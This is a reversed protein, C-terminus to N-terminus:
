AKLARGNAAGNGNTKVAPAVKATVAASDKGKIGTQEQLQHIEELVDLLTSASWAQTPCSDQCFAGQDNTLEPLGAWPSEKIHRRHELLQNSIYHFTELTNETSADSGGNVERDFKLYARLYFGLPWVWPPGRHYSFGQGMTFDDSDNSNDYVPRYTMDSPDLTRMGLVDRLVHSAAQLATLAHEPEFLEPAVSMAIPFNARLQYDSWERGAGSGYVDKYIGRRNVLKPDVRYNGDDEPNLPVYYCAEFSKQILDGWAKYSITQEKGDIMAEVGKAPWKGRASLEDVWRLTSKLLGTIEVAAGDRPTGPVGRNGAKASSGMKDQWTGCNHENGGFIIGTSWDVDIDINFGPDKMCEDIKPGANYERFHIGSAHRQLIEQILEAITSEYAFAKPDDWPVWEDNAPFRRKVKEQLIAEGDKVLTCYDQVNQAFFWPGDRCNYRPTRTSDLLNPILGHKLTSGFSLIHERAYQSMGTTLYLGRLSIFVDRGWCRAWGASFFPLGAAMSASDKDPWLSASKVVGNLQVSTLALAKTFDHGSKVFTSMQSVARACAAKYAENVVLAFYKPRMFSPVTAKIADFREKLWAAPAALRPFTAQQKELRGQIYDMPWAGERLHACVAHGLDNNEIIKRLPHMWGELGCYVLKGHGPIDYVGDAGGTVDREEGDARYLVVNLDILDLEAMAKDADKTCLEDLSASLGDMQTAFFMVSGPPFQDPVIIESYAVADSGDVHGVEIRPCPVDVLKSPLGRLTDPDEKQERDTIQLTKGFIYQVKTRDLRIPNIDGRDQRGPSHFASHAVCIYGKHTQPHVRHMILYDNEQHVHGESYGGAVMEAHLHNVVRKVESIGFSESAKEGSDVPATAYSRKEGVVDLLKPYLDDFGKNSGIASWSFAVLAGMTIADETTRKSTPTENDHTVDMFLAHPSSGPHPTILAEVQADQGPVGIRDKYSLCESDMSGIPKNVGFRYLLRSEEKPDHGNEMERILSNIGLRSVFYEDMEASGTFLEACVYLDPNERRAVDLFYEGVHIPTSHCNDIRFGAFMKALMRTYEEMHSWLFPSDKPGSGYRLKVCDGWAIVERRIYVRSKPSAFDLLPDAAWIWGNNALHLKKKDHKAAAPHKPDLRTFYTEALPSAESIAGLKPGNPDLRTYKLRGGLNELGAKVDEDFTAYLPGNIQDLAAAAAALADDKGKGEADALTRLIKVATSVDLRTAFRDALMLRGQLAHKELLEAASGLNKGQLDAQLEETNSGQGQHGDWGDALQSKSAEVDIVYYQWLKLPGYVHEKIGNVIADADAASNIETPLGLSALNCSFKFLAEDLEAAGTLHPSNHPNYGADPHENLWESDSATHNLVVDTMSLIGWESRIKSLWSKVEAIRSERSKAATSGQEFLDPAFDTQNAISYPSDSAGRVNLPPFHLMNYGADRASDLHPGWTPLPGGAWKSIFSQLVIGDQSLIREQLLKGGGEAKSLPKLEKSLIDQRGPLRLIPDVNFYGHKSQVRSKSREEPTLRKALPHEITPYPIPADQAAHEVYFEYAGANAVLLDVHVQKSVDTPLPHAYFKERKFSEGAPPFNTYLVGDRSALTGADITFRLVYPQPHPAPLRVYSKSSAPSGDEELRLEHVAVPEQLQSNKAQSPATKTGNTAETSQQKSKTVSKTVMKQTSPAPPPNLKTASANRIRPNSALPVAAGNGPPPSTRAPKLRAPM